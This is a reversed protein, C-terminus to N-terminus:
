MDYNYNRRTSDEGSDSIGASASVASLASGAMQAAVRAVESEGQMALKALEIAKTQDLDAKKLAISAEFQAEQLQQDVKKLETNMRSEEAQVLTGFLRVQSDHIKAKAETEVSVKQLESKYADLEAAYAELGLKEVAIRGNMEATVADVQKGYADIQASHAQVLAKFGELQANDAGVAATYGKWEAEYAGVAASFAQVQKSFGDLKLAEGQMRGNAAEIQSRYVAVVQAVGEWEAKYLEVGQANIQVFLKSIEAETKTIELKSMESQILATVYDRVVAAEAQWADNRAKFVALTADLVKVLTDLTRNALDGCVGWLKIKTDWLQNQYQLSLTIASRLQEIELKAEELWLDRNLQAKKDRAQNRIDALKAELAGGPLTFGRALWDTMAASEAQFAQRDEASFARNRLATAVAAPIGISHGALMWALTAEIPLVPSLEAGLQNRLQDFTALFNDTPLTTVPAAPQRSRLDNLIAAVGDINPTRLTPLPINAANPLTPQALTPSDPYIVDTIAPMDRPMTVALPSPARKPLLTPLTKSFAAPAAPFVGRVDQIPDLRAPNDIRDLTLEPYDPQDPVQFELDVKDPPNAFAFGELALGAAAIHGTTEGLIAAMAEKATGVAEFALSRADSWKNEVFATVGSM